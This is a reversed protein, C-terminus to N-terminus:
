NHNVAAFFGAVCRSRCKFPKKGFADRMFRSAVEQDTYGVAVATTFEIDDPTNGRWRRLNDIAQPYNGGNILDEGLRWGREFELKQKVAKAAIAKELLTM